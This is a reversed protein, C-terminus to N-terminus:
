WCSIVSKCRFIFPTKQVWNMGCYINNYTVREQWAETCFSSWSSISGCWKDLLTFSWLLVVISNRSDQLPKIGGKCNLSYTREWLTLLNFSLVKAWCDSIVALLTSSSCLLCTFAIFKDFNDFSSLSQLGSLTFLASLMLSNVSCHSFSKIASFSSISCDCECDKSLFDLMLIQFALSNANWSVNFLSNSPM